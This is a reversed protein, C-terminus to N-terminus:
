RDNYFIGTSRTMLVSKLGRSSSIITSVWGIGNSERYDRPPVGQERCSNIYSDIDVEPVEGKAQQRCAVFLAGVAYHKEPSLGEAIKSVEKEAEKGGV